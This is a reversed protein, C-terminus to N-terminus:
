LTWPESLWILLTFSFALIKVTSQRFVFLTLPAASKTEHRNQFTSHIKTQPVWSSKPPLTFFGSDSKALHPFHTSDCVTSEPHLFVSNCHWSNESYSFNQASTNCRLHCGKRGKWSSGWHEQFQFQAPSHNGYLNQKSFSPIYDGPVAQHLLQTESLSSFHARKVSVSHDDSIVLGARDFDFYVLNVNVGLYQNLYGSM